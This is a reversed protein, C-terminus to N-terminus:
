KNTKDSENKPIMKLPKLKSLCANPDKIAYFKRYGLICMKPIKGNFVVEGDSSACNFAMDGLGYRLVRNGNRKVRECPDHALGSLFAKRRDIVVVTVSEVNRRTALFYAWTKAAKANGASLFYSDDKKATKTIAIHSRIGKAFDPRNCFYKRKIGNEYDVVVRFLCNKGLKKAWQDILRLNPLDFWNKSFFSLNEKRLHGCRRKRDKRYKKLISLGYDNRPM